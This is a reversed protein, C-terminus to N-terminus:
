LRNRKRMCYASCKHIQLAKFLNITDIKVNSQVTESCYLFNSPHKKNFLKKRKVPTKEASKGASSRTRSSKQRNSTRSASKKKRAAQVQAGTDDGMDQNVDSSEDLSQADNDDQDNGDKQEFLINVHARIENESLTPMTATMGFSKEIWEAIFESMNKMPGIKDMAEKLLKNHDTIVLMHAHIQGRSPAFEFRCWHHKIKFIDRGVTDLWNQVRKQFYEQVVITYDNVNTVTNIRGDEYAPGLPSKIGPFNFREKLLRSIDPWYYEACSLTIFLTPPGAGTSIHHKIWTHIKNRQTRWYATSGKISSSFYMLKNIWKCDNKAIADQLEDLDDYDNNFQKVYYSGQSSNSHRNVYNLVYFAFVKDDAFRGDEYFCCDEMWTKLTKNRPRLDHPGGVGGPFLWPFAMGFIDLTTDYEDVATEEVDPYSMTEKNSKRASDPDDQADCDNDSSSDQSDQSTQTVVNVGAAQARQETTTFPVTVDNGQTVAQRAMQQIKRTNNDDKENPKNHFSNHVVGEVNYDIDDASDKVDCVQSAAPGKDQQTVGNIVTAKYFSSDGYGEAYEVDEYYIRKNEKNPLEAEEQDDMWNLRNADVIVDNYHRNYKQLWYLADLVKKRRIVFSKEGIDGHEDKFKKIVQVFQVDDSLNPLGNVVKSINQRFAASHGKCGTQGKFLHHVPVYVNIRQILLKEGERLDLLEAPLHFQIKNQDNYWVPLAKQSDDIDKVHTRCSNCLQISKNNHDTASTKLGLRVQRCGM